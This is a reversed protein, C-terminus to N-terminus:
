GNIPAETIVENGDDYSVLDSVGLSYALIHFEDGNRVMVYYMTERIVIVTENQQTETVTEGNVVDTVVDIRPTKTTCKTTATVNCKNEDVMIVEVSELEYTNSSIDKTQKFNDLMLTKEDDNIDWYNIYSEYDGSNAYSYMNTLSKFVEDTMVAEEPSRTESASIDDDGDTKGCSVALTSLSLLSLLICIIKIRTKM